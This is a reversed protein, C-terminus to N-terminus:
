GLLKSFFASGKKPGRRPAEFNVLVTDEGIVEIDCWKIVIDEERGLLGFCRSRGYVIISELKGECTDVEVDCVRGLCVGNKICIVDKDQLDVIRCCGM